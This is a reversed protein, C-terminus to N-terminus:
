SGTETESRRAQLVAKTEYHPYHWFLPERGFEEGLLLPVMSAGDVHQDPRTRLGALELLTPYFDVSTVPSDVVAGPKTVGPARIIMPERIGGEYM